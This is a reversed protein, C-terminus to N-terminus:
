PSKRTGPATAARSTDRGTDVPFPAGRPHRFYVPLQVSVPVPKGKLTAPAFDLFRSGSIAASDLGAIGSSKVIQTSEAVVMGTSDLHIHLTVNGQVKKEYLAAPYRFPLEHNRMRPAKDPTPGGGHQQQIAVIANQATDKDICGVEGVGLSIVILPLTVRRM